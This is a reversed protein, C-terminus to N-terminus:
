STLEENFPSSVEVNKLFGRTIWTSLNNGLASVLASMNSIPQGYTFLAMIYANYKGIRLKNKPLYRSNYANAYRQLDQKFGDSVSPWLAAAAKMLTGKYRHNENLLPYVYNRAICITDNKMSMFVMQGDNCKGSMTKINKRFTVRM